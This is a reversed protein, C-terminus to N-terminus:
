EAEHKGLQTYCKKMKKEIEACNMSFYHVTHRMKKKFKLHQMRCIHQKSKSITPMQWFTM